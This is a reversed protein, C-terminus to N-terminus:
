NSYFNLNKLIREADKRKITTHEKMKKKLFDKYIKTREMREGQKAGWKGPSAFVTPKGKEKLFANIEDIFCKDVTILLELLDKDSYTLADGHLLRNRHRCSFYIYLELLEKFCGFSLLENYKLGCLELITKMYNDKKYDYYNDSILEAEKYQVENLRLGILLLRKWIAETCCHVRVFRECSIENEEEIIKRFEKLNM